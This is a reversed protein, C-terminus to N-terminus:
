KDLPFSWGWSVPPLNKDKSTPLHSFDRGSVRKERQARREGESGAGGQQGVSSAWWAVEEEFEEIKKSNALSEKDTDM